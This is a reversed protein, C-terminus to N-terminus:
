KTDVAKLTFSFTSGHNLRSSLQIKTGLKSALKTSVYLGLGTGGTERTRYDESRYFKNFIKAQDSKSIGIGTDIVEFLIKKGDRSVKLTVSGEKTYKIANTILNQLLERVYLHSANVTGLNGITDLNFLLHKKEAQPAYERYLDDILAKVDIIEPADALGREARSLTSLDNVMRSLFIIQEHANELSRELMEKPTEDRQVMLQANSLTGEAITLPTRLEHSIVSIFEDREEELSKAKTIDRLILLYGDKEGNKLKAQRYSTRVSTVTVELRITEDDITFLLDDRTEVGRARKAMETLSVPTDATDKLKLVDDLSRQGLSLNTNLLNLSAANYLEIKGDNDIHIIAETLSNILTNMRNSQLAEQSKSKMLEDSSARQVRNVLIIIAGIVMISVAAIITQLLTKETFPHFLLDAGVTLLLTIINLYIGAKGIYIYSILLLLVWAPPVFVSSFGAIAIVFLSVCVHYASMRLIMALKKSEPFVFNVLGVLLWATMVISFIYDPPTLSYAYDSRIVDESNLWPTLSFIVLMLPLVVSTYRIIERIRKDVRIDGGKM